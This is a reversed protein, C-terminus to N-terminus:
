KTNFYEKVRQFKDDPTEENEPSNEFQDKTSLKSYARVYPDNLADQDTMENFNQNHGRRWGTAAKLENGGTKELLINSGLDAAKEDFNRDQNLKDTIQDPTLRKINSLEEPIEYNRNKAQNVFDKLSNPLIGYAGGATQGANIGSEITEHSLNKGGSSELQKIVRKFREKQENDM